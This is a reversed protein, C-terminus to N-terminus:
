HQKNANSKNIYQLLRQSMKAYGEKNPHFHDDYLLSDTKGKFLDSTPVFSIPEFNKGIQKSNANWENLIPVFDKNAKGLYDEFPNYLGFYYIPADPNLQRIEHLIKKLNSSFIKRQNTFDSQRLNLFHQKFVHVLDNGGITLFVTNSEKISEIFKPQKLKKLLDSSTDGQHGLDRIIVHKVNKKKKLAKYTAGVYGQNELDGIGETLSDGLAVIKYNLLEPKKQPTTSKEFYLFFLPISIVIVALLAVVSYIVRKKIAQM